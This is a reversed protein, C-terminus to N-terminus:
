EMYSCVQHWLVRLATWRATAATMSVAKTLESSTWTPVSSAQDSLLKSLAVRSPNRLVVKHNYLPNILLINGTSSLTYLELILNSWSFLM